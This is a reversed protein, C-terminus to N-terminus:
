TAKWFGLDMDPNTTFVFGQPAYGDLVPILENVKLKLADEFGEPVVSWDNRVGFLTTVALTDHEDTMYEHAKKFDIDIFARVLTPWTTLPSNHLSAIAEELYIYPVEPKDTPM